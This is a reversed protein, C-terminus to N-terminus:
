VTLTAARQKKILSRILVQASPTHPARIIDQFCPIKNKSENSASIPGAYLKCDELEMVGKRCFFADGYSLSLMNVENLGDSILHRINLATSRSIYDVLVDQVVWVTKGGWVMGVESKVILQSVMRAWVQRYNIGPAQHPKKLIADEFAMPMTTRNNKNGGSTSCTMVEIVVPMGGPFDNVIFEGSDGPTMRYGSEALFTRTSRQSMGLIKSADLLRAPMLPVLIYDFTYDFSLDGSDNSSKYKIKLESWVGIRTRPPFTAYKLLMSCANDQFKASSSGANGLFLLRRPCVIWPDQREHIEISCIGCPVSVNKGYIDALASNSTTSVNSMYRNGGGDCPANMFPCVAKGRCENADSSNDSPHYGFLEFIKPM